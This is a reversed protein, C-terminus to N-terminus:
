DNEEDEENNDNDDELENPEDWEPTYPQGGNSWEPNYKSQPM